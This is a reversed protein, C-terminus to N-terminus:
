ITEGKISSVAVHLSAGGIIEAFMPNDYVGGTHTTLRMEVVWGNVIAVLLHSRFHQGKDDTYEFSEGRRDPISKDDGLQGAGISVAGQHMQLVAARDGAFASDTTEGDPARTAFITLKADGGIEEYDCGVDAGPETAPGVIARTLPMAPPWGPVCTMGSQVHKINGDDLATWVGTAGPSRAIIAESKAKLRPNPTGAQAAASLALAGALILLELRM